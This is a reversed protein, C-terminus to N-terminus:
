ERVWFFVRANVMRVYDSPAITPAVRTLGRVDLPKQDRVTIGNIRAVESRPLPEVFAVGADQAIASFSMLDSYRIAEVNEAFTLHYLRPYRAAFPGPDAM